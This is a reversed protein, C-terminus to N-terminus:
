VEMYKKGLWKDNTSNQYVDAIAGFKNSRNSTSFLDIDKLPHM